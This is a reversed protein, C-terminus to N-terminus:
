TEWEAVCEIGMSCRWRRRASPASCGSRRRAHAGTEDIIQQVANELKEREAYSLVIAQRAKGETRDIIEKIAAVDGGIARDILARSPTPITVM